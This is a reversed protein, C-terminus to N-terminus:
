AKYQPDKKLTQYMAKLSNETMEVPNNKMNPAFSNAVLKELDADSKVGVEELSTRMGMEQKMFDIRDALDLAHKFGLRRSFANLREAEPGQESNIRWFSPLTLACAEGHPIGYDQTLPYSCAHAAATQTNGFALGATVSAESMGERAEKNGPDHYAKLLFQFALTAAREAALDTIPQHKKGYYAELSHAIVDLGSAATVQPPCTLTLQPDVLAYVPYIFNSAILSKINRETDTLVSANTVESATGSTTPMAILPIGPKTISRKKSLYDASSYPMQATFCAVKACDMISGGGLAVAFSCHNGRLAGACADTSAVTPNPQVDSFIAVLRGESQEVLEQAIGSRVMSPASILLGRKLHMQKLIETLQQRKGFGFDIPVPQRYFFGTM